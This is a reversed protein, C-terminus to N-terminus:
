TNELDVLSQSLNILKDQKEKPLVRFADIMQKFSADAPNLYEKMFKVELEAKELKSKLRDVAAQALGIVDEADYCCSLDGFNKAIFECVKQYESESTSLEENEKKLADYDSKLVLHQGERLRTGNVGQITGVYWVSWTQVENVKPADWYYGCSCYRRATMDRVISFRPNGCSPCLEKQETM